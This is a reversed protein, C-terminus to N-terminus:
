YKKIERYNKIAWKLFWYIIFGPVVSRLTGHLLEKFPVNPYRNITLIVLRYWTIVIDTLYACFLLIGFVLKLCVSTKKNLM